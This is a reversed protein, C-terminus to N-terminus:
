IEFAWWFTRLDTNRMLSDRYIDIITAERGFRPHIGNYHKSVNRLYRSGERKEELIIKRKVEGSHEYITREAVMVGTKSDYTSLLVMSEDRRMEIYVSSKKDPIYIATEQTSIDQVHREKIGDERDVIRVLQEGKQYETITQFTESTIAPFPTTDHIDPSETAPNTENIIRRGRIVRSLLGTRDRASVIDKRQGGGDGRKTVYYIIDRGDKLEQLRIVSHPQVMDPTTPAVDFLHEKKVLSPSVAQSDTRVQEMIRRHVNIKQSIFSGTTDTAPRSLQASIDRLRAHLPQAADSLSRYADGRRNM